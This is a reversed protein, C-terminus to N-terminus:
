PEPLPKGQNIFYSGVSDYKGGRYHPNSHQYHRQKINKTLGVYGVKNEEDAYIYIVYPEHRCSEDIHCIPMHALVEKIIGLYRAAEYAASQEEYFKTRNNYQKALEFIKEPTWKKEYSLLGLEDMLGMNLAAYYASGHKKLEAKYKINNESIFDLLQEKTWKRPKAVEKKEKWPYDKTMHRKTAADYAAPENMRFEYVSNYRSMVELINEKTWKRNFSLKKLWTLSNLMRKARLLSHARPYKAKFEIRGICNHSLEIAREVTMVTYRNDFWEEQLNNTIVFEYGEPCKKKFEEINSCELSINYYDVPKM